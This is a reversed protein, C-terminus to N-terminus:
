PQPGGQECARAHFNPAKGIRTNKLVAVQAAKEAPTLLVAPRPPGAAPSDGPFAHSRRKRVAATRSSYGARV